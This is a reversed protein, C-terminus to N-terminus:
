RKEVNRRNRGECAFSCVWSVPAMFAQMSKQETALLQCSSKASPNSLQDATVQGGARGFKHLSLLWHDTARPQGVEERGREDM